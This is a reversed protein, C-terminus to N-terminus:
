MQVPEIAKIMNVKPSFRNSGGSRLSHPQHNRDSTKTTESERAARIPKTWANMRALAAIPRIQACNRNYISEIGYQRALGQICFPILPNMRSRQSFQKLM